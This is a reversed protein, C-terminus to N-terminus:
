FIVKFAFQTNFPEGPGIGPAGEYTGFTSAIVGAESSQPAGVPALNVHNLLNFMEVRFQTNIHEGIKTNKFVSLDIDEYGPNYFLNRRTTSYTGDTPDAFATPSFWQVSSGSTSRQLSHSVGAFPNAAVLQARDANDGNGSTNTSAVVSFPQGNHFSAATNAEWGNLLVRPGFRSNPAAYNAFASFTNRTDFDSNSYEAKVNFSDQPLYPVLGTEYDLAHSWTYTAQTTLGHWLSTRLIAQLSNYNSNLDSELQNVTGIGKFQSFYPRTSQQYTYTQVAGNVIESIPTTVFGSGLAAANIDLVETLHKSLTGVYGLQAIVGSGLSKQANLNYSYTYSQRYNPNVSYANTITGGVGTLVGALSSALSPFIPKNPSIVYSDAAATAVPDGGGPNNGVGLAGDDTTDRLNLLPLMYPTDFYMGFGARLVLSNSLSYAAGVRPSVAGKFPTYLNSVNEGQVAFGSAFSPDFSTLDKYPNHISDAFDYRVGYNLNLGPTIQWADQGFLNFTNEFVQRKQNGEAIFSTSVCGALFDALLYVNSDSQPDAVGINKTALADCAASGAGVNWPGQSGDFDFNGRANTQYFDDVQAQRYEGGFRFQHKGITWSLADDLHGTIDNRGSPATPGITDFGSASGTLGSGSAPPAISLHPAGSLDASTVGTNLGLAVPDYSHNEDSFVQNFYSVGAFVQNAIAPTFVHNYTVSYNQVHIPAVEYYPSLYSSTPATQNGQGAYWKVSLQNSANFSHDIKIIGNFSHGNETGPNFYNEPNAPGNLASSPWLNALLAASVSNPTIGYFSLVKQALAQYAVSPETSVTQNGIVFNQHEYTVFFFTKDKWIPGGVSFGYDIDRTKNKESGIPAFPTEAAFFENRNFYYATGHLQNTGSKISLNVTGGANRGSEPTGSTVFSFQDIADLPLVIGAIGSVGGQNVAPINWWLDNNDTGEIQWNVQNSRTGNVSAVGAGGGLSYGGFGPTFQLLQTFDRGNNPVNNVVQTPIDTTQTMSTTDLAVTAANVNVVQVSSSIALKVSVTYTSGASVTVKDIKETSFGNATVTVTYSGVPLDSFSFEGASSSVANRSVSTGDNTATVTAGPISAGSADVVTGNIGGRFSQAQMAITSSLFLAFLFYFYKKWNHNSFSHV